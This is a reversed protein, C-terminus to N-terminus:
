DAHQKFRHILRRDKKNPKRDIGSFGLLEKRERESQIQQQRKLHSEPTEEYLLVADKASRRQSSLATVTFGWSYGNKNLTLETGTKIEKAPKSRQGNVHVKGGNIAETALKRTKYFRAVWLWKDLRITDLETPV